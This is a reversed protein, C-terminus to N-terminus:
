AAPVSRYLSAERNYAYVVLTPDNVDTIVASFDSWGFTATEDFLYKKKDGNYQVFFYSSYDPATKKARLTITYNRGPVIGSITQYLYSYAGLVFCSDSSTNNKTDTSSDTRVTGSYVWDDTIGNLGASNQVYNMGGIYQEEMHLTLGDVSQQLQSLQKEASLVREEVIDQDNSLTEVTETLSSVYSNLGEATTQFEGIRETNTTVTTRLSDLGNEPVWAMGDWVMTEPPVIATNVWLQGYYPNEPPTDSAVVDCINTITIQAIARM